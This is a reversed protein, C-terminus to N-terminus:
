LKPETAAKRPTAAQLPSEKQLVEIREAITDACDQCYQLDFGELPFDTRCANELAQLSETDTLKEALMKCTEPSSQQTHMAPQVLRTLDFNECDALKEALEKILNTTDRLWSDQGPILEAIMQNVMSVSAGALEKLQLKVRSLKSFPFPVGSVPLHEVLTGTLKFRAGALPRGDIMANGISGSNKWYLRAGQDTAMWVKHATAGRFGPAEKISHLEVVLPEKATWKHNAPVDILAQEPSRDFWAGNESNPHPYGGIGYEAALDPNEKLFLNAAAAMLGHNGGTIGSEIVAQANFAFSNNTDSEKWWTVAKEALPMFAQNITALEALSLANSQDQMMDGTSGEQLHHNDEYMSRSIYGKKQILYFALTLSEEVTALEGMNPKLGMGEMLSDPDSESLVSEYFLNANSVARHMSHDVFDDLCSSGVQLTKGTAVEELLTVKTRKRSNGCHDCQCPDISKLASVPVVPVLKGEGDSIMAQYNIKMAGNAKDQKLDAVIRYGKIPQAFPHSITVDVMPVTMLVPDKASGVNISMLKREGISLSVRQESRSRELRRNLDKIRKQFTGLAGQYIRLQLSEDIIKEAPDTM